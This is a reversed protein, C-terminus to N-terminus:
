WAIIIGYGISEFLLSFCVSMSSRCFSCFCHTKILLIYCHVSPASDPRDTSMSPNFISLLVFAIWRMHGPPPPRHALESPFAFVLFVFLAGNISKNLFSDTRARVGPARSV